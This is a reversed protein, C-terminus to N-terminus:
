PKVQERCMCCRGHDDVSLSAACGADTAWCHEGARCHADDGPCEDPRKGELLACLDCSM